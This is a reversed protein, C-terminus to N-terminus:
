WGLVKGGGSGGPLLRGLWGPGGAQVFPEGPQKDRAQAPSPGQGLRGGVEVQGVGEEKVTEALAPLAQRGPNCVSPSHECLRVSRSGVEQTVM